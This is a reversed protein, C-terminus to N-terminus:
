AAHQRLHLHGAMAWHDEVIFPCPHAFEEGMAAPDFSQYLLLTQLLEYTTPSMMTFVVVLGSRDRRVVRGALRLLVQRKAWCARITLACPTSNAPSDDGFLFIGTLSLDRARHLTARAGAFSVGVMRELPIRLHGRRNSTVM